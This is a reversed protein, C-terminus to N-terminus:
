QKLNCVGDNVFDLIRGPTGVVIRPSKRLSKAQEDKPVGGFLAVSTIGFPAGFASLTEHTQLALERTPAVVLVNVTKKKKAIVRVLAPIGFALTKGSDHLPSRAGGL